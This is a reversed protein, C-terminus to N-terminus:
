FIVRLQEQFGGHLLIKDKNTAAEICVVLRKDKNTAAEICVVLWFLSSEENKYDAIFAM